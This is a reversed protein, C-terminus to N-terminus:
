KQFIERHSVEEEERITALNQRASFCHIPAANSMPTLQTRSPQSWVPTAQPGFGMHLVIESNPFGTMLERTSIVRQSAARRNPGGRGM